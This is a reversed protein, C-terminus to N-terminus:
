GRVKVAKMIATKVAESENTYTGDLASTLAITIAKLTDDPVDKTLEALLPSVTTVEGRRGRYLADFDAVADALAFMPRHGILSFAAGLNGEAIMEALSGAGAPVLTPVYPATETVVPGAICELCVDNMRAASLVVWGDESPYQTKARELVSAMLVQPLVGAPVSAIFSQIADTSLLVHAEHAQTELARALDADDRVEEIMAEVTPLVPGTAVPLNGPVLPDTFVALPRQDVIVKDVLIGPHANAAVRDLHPVIDHATVDENPSLVVMYPAVSLVYSIVVATLTLAVYFGAVALVGSGYVGFTVTMALFVFAVAWVTVRSQILSNTM